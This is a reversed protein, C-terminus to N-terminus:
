SMRRRRWAVFAAGTALLSLTAPEPVTAQGTIVPEPSGNVYGNTGNARGISAGPMNQVSFDFVGTATNTIRFLGNISGNAISSFDAIRAANFTFQSTQSTFAFTTFPQSFTWSFTGLLTAGNFLDVKASPVGCGASCTGNLIFSLTDVEGIPSNPDGPFGFTVSLAQGPLVPLASAPRAAVMMAAAITLAVVLRGIRM